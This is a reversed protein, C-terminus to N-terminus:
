YEVLCLIISCIKSTLRLKTTSNTRKVNTYNIKFKICEVVFNFRCCSVLWFSNTRQLFSSLNVFWLFQSHIFITLTICVFLLDCQIFIVFTCIHTFKHHIFSFHQDFNWNWNWTLRIHRYNWFWYVSFEDLFPYWKRILSHEIRIFFPFWFYSVFVNCVHLLRVRYKLVNICLKNNSWPNASSCTTFRRVTSCQM